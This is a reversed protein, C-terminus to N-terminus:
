PTIEVTDWTDTSENYIYEFGEPAPETPMPANEAIDWTNTEQNYVYHFGEPAPETPMPAPLEIYDWSLTNENWELRYGEMDEPKPVPATWEYEQENLVWSPYLKKFLFADLGEHYIGGISAYRVRISNNYSTQVWKYNGPTISKLYDIGLQESEDGNEDLLVHDSVRVVNIVENNENLQAFHAM